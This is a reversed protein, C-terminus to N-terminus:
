QGPNKRRQERRIFVYLETVLNFHLAGESRGDLYNRPEAPALTQNPPPRFNLALVNYQIPRHPAMWDHLPLPMMRPSHAAILWSPKAEM